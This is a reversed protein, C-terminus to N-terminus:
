YCKWRADQCAEMAKRLATARRFLEADTLRSLHQDAIEFDGSKFYAYALAYRVNQDDLLGVRHLSGSMGAVMEYRELEILIALRQKLKKRQDAVRANLNLARFLHRARRQLEAAESLLQPDDIAAQEFLNAATVVQGSDLYANALEVTVRKSDPFELRASELFPLAEDLQGSRRLAAGIALYDDETADSVRLYERGHAAAAQYLGLEILYFVKRRLFRYDRPFREAGADLAAWAQDYQELAWHSQAKLVHLSAIKAGAKGADDIARIAAAYEKLRYHAQALYVYVIRNEQGAEIAARFDQKADENQDLNLRVLGRLTYFRARDLDERGTDVKALVSAARAYHNDRMLLSALSLRDVDEEQAAASLSMGGLGALLLLVLLFRGACRVRGNLAFFAM